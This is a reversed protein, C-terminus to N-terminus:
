EPVLVTILTLEKRFTPHLKINSMIFGKENNNGVCSNHFYLNHSSLKYNPILTILQISFLSSASYRHSLIDFHAFPINTQAIIKITYYGINAM